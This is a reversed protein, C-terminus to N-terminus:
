IFRHPGGTVVPAVLGLVVMALGVVLLWACTRGRIGRVVRAHFYAAYIVWAALALLQKPTEPFLVQWMEHSWVMGAAIGATLLPFGIEATRHAFRELSELTPLNRSIAGPRRKKLLGSVVLYMAGGSGALGYMLYAMLLLPVHLLLWPSLLMPDAPQPHLPLAPAVVVLSAGAIVLVVGGIGVGRLLRATLLYTLVLLASLVATFERASVLPAAPNGAERAVVLVLHSLLGAGAIGLAIRGPVSRRPRVMLLLGAILYAIAPALFLTNSM